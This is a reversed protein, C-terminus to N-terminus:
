LGALCLKEMDKVKRGTKMSLLSLLTEVLKSAAAREAHDGPLKSYFDPGGKMASFVAAADEYSTFEQRVGMMNGLVSWLVIWADRMEAPLKVKLLKEMGNLLVVSFTLETWLMMEMNMSHSMTEAWAKFTGGGRNATSSFSEHFKALNYMHVLGTGGGPRGRVHAIIDYLRGSTDHIRGAADGMDMLKGTTVLFRSIQSLKYVTPLSCLSLMKKMHEFYVGDEHYMSSAVEMSKLVDSQSLRGGYLRDGIFKSLVAEDTLGETGAYTHLVDKNVAQFLSESEWVTGWSNWANYPAGCKESPPAHADRELVCACGRCHANSACDSSESCTGVGGPTLLCKCGLQGEACREGGHACVLGSFECEDKGGALGCADGVHRIDSLIGGSTSLADTDLM